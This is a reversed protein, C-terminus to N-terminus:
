RQGPRQLSGGASIIEIDAGNRLSGIVDTLVQRTVEQQIKPMAHPMSPAEARRREEVLIVHWGFQTKVPTKSYDGIDM